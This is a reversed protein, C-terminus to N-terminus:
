NVVTQKSKPLYKQAEKLERQLWWIAGHAVGGKSKAEELFAEAEIVKQEV